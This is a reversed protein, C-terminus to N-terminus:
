INKVTDVIFLTTEKSLDLERPENLKNKNKDYILNVVPRVPFSKNQRSVIGYTGDNLKVITGSPYAAINEIFTAILSKDFISGSMAILYELVEYVEMKKRGSFDSTLNDFTNCISVLKVTEHLKDETLSLPFGTGDCHEHHMLIIAKSIYGINEKDNLIEYGDLPHTKLTEVEEPDLKGEKAKNIIDKPILLKGVDHLLSGIAVEKLHATNYGLHIATVIALACVNISHEFLCNDKSKIDSINVIVEKRSLIDDIIAEASKTIKDASFSHRNVLKTFANKLAIKTELRINESVFDEVNIGQSFEDDIYISLVGLQTLRMKFGIKLATGVSLLLRGSPDYIPKVLIENGKIQDISIKRM